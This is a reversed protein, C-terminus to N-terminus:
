LQIIFNSNLIMYLVIFYSTSITLTMIFSMIFVVIRDIDNIKAYSTLDNSFLRYCIIWIVVIPILYYLCESIDITITTM